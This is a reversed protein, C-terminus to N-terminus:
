NELQRLTNQIVDHPVGELHPGAHLVKGKTFLDANHFTNYGQPIETKLFSMPNTTFREKNKVTNVVIQKTEANHQCSKKSRYILYLKLKNNIKDFILTIYGRSFDYIKRIITDFKSFPLKGKEKIYDFVVIIKNSVPNQLLKKKFRTFLKVVKEKLRQCNDKAVQGLDQMLEKVKLATDKIALKIADRKSYLYCALVAPSVVVALGAIASYVGLTLGIGIVNLFIETVCASIKLLSQVFASKNEGYTSIKLAAKEGMDEFNKAIRMPGQGLRGFLGQTTVRHDNNSISSM